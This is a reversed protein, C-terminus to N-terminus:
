NITSLKNPEGPMTLGEYKMAVINPNTFIGYSALYHSVCFLQRTDKKQTFEKIFNFFRGRKIEDFFTGVEDMFLPYDQDHYSLATLRFAFDIIGTQGLSCDSIDPVPKGEGVVVPFKYTLDGNDKNCPLVYLPSNWVSQIVSNMNGCFTKLFDTMLKGIYGKNPCLQDMWTEVIVLKKKLRDIDESISTVVATLSRGNIIATLNSDKEDSLIGIRTDVQKRLSVMGEAELGKLIDERLASLKALDNNYNRLIELNKKFNRLKLKHTLVRDNETKLKKELNAVYLATDLVNDRQLIELRNNLFTQEEVLSERQKKVSFCDIYARMANLLINTDAKGVDYHKVLNVLCPVDSNLRCYQHLGLMSDYWEADNEVIRVLTAKEKDLIEIQLILGNVKTKLKAIDELSVGIKFEHNCDPCEVSDIGEYHKLQHTSATLEGNLRNLNNTVQELKTTYLKYQGGTITQSSALTVRHLQAVFSPYVLDLGKFSEEPDKFLECTNLHDEYQSIELDAKAISKALQDAQHQFVKPDEMFEELGEMIGAHETIIRQTVAAQEQYVGVLDEVTEIAELLETETDFFGSVKNVAMQDTLRTFERIKLQVSPDENFQELNGRVLLSQRLESDISKIRNELEDIGCDAIHQLKRNEETYRSVQNKIAAKIERSSVKLKNYVSMAYQTDNPYLWMLVEKRRAPTMNSFFDASKLGSLIKNRSSDLKFYRWVLEKQVSYTGGKNLNVGDVVFSHGDTKDTYSDLIFLKGDKLTEIYKRGNTYNAKEPPLQNLEKMISTKGAGNQAIFLNVLQNLNLEVRNIGSSALPVYNELILKIIM